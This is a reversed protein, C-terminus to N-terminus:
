ILHAGPASQQCPPHPWCVDPLNSWHPNPPAHTRLSSSLGTPRTSTLHAASISPLHPSVEKLYEENTRGEPDDLSIEVLWSRPYLMDYIIQMKANPDTVVLLRSQPNANTTAYHFLSQVKCPFLVRGVAPKFQLCLTPPHPYSSSVSPLNAWPSGGPTTVTLTLSAIREPIRTALEIACTNTDNREDCLCAACRPCDDWWTLHWGRSSRSQGEM